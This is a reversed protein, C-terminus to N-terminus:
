RNNQLVLRSTQSQNDDSAGDQQREAWTFSGFDDVDLFTVSNLLSCYYCILLRLLSVTTRDNKITNKLIKVDCNCLHTGLYKLLSRDVVGIAPM